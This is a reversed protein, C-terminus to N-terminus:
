HQPPDKLFLVLEEEKITKKGQKFIDTTKKLEVRTIVFNEQLYDLLTRRMSEQSEKSAPFVMKRQVRVSEEVEVDFLASLSKTGEEKEPPTEKPLSDKGGNSSIFLNTVNELERGFHKMEM